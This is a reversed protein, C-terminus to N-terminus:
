DRNIEYYKNYKIYGLLYNYRIRFNEWYEIDLNSMKIGFIAGGAIRKINLLSFGDRMRLGAGLWRWRSYDSINTLDHHHKVFIPLLYWKLGKSALFRAYVADEASSYKDLEECELVTKRYTICCGFAGNGGNLAITNKTHKIYNDDYYAGVVGADKHPMCFIFKILDKWNPTLEVDSDVFGIIDTQSKEAGIRRASGLSNSSMIIKCEFEKAIEITDDKSYRDVIIIENMNGYREISMLTRRLTSGSNWTPVIYDIKIM